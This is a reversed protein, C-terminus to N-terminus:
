FLLMQRYERLVTALLCHLQEIVTPTSNSRTTNLNYGTTTYTTLYQINM